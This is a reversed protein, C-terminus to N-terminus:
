TMDEIKKIMDGGIRAIELLVAPRNLEFVDSEAAAGAGEVARVNYRLGVQFNQKRLKPHWIAGVVVDEVSGHFFLLTDEYVESLKKLLVEVPHQAISDPVRGIRHDLNKFQSSRVGIDGTTDRLMKQITTKSLHILIDYDGLPTQFLGKPDLDLGDERVVKCATKALRTMRTAVLKSPGNSTYALGTQDHSTAVFLVLRSMAPDRKRWDGLARHLDSRDRSSVSGGVFNLIMPEERWDWRSLFLLTRLFGTSISAPPKWPHPHLFSQLVFLEILEESIHGALKQSNFWHKVLRITPSLAPFLTCFTTISQTHLPLHNYLWRFSLLAQDAEARTHAELSQNKVMRELLTEELDCHIRLRFIAGSPYTIDLFFLNHIGVEMDERVLQTVIQGNRTRLRRDLDLLFEPKTKQIATLNEPWRGSAEFYLNVEIPQFAGKVSGLVPAEVSSYRVQPAIAKLQRVQLPMDELERIDAELVSFANRAVDFVEKDTRLIGIISSFSNGRFRLHEPGLNLHLQLIYQCIEQCIVFASASPWEVCELIRGDQFRRLEARDGWLKQFKQAEDRKEAPPGYEMTRNMQSSDFVIGVSFRSLAGDPSAGRIPWPPREALLLHVLQARNGLAKNLLEYIESGFSWAFRQQDLTNSKSVPSGPLIELVLDFMQLPLSAKTIFTPEFQGMSQDNFLELSIKAQQQLLAASWPGMKFLINLETTPDFMVPGYEKLSKSDLRTDGRAPFTYPNEQFNTNALFQITAKFLELSSLSTPVLDRGKRGDRQLRLAILLSWEFHGFGGKSISSELGRQQLWIRGLICADQFAVCEKRALSLVELYHLFSMEAEVTSYYFNPQGIREPKEGSQGFHNCLKSLQFQGEQVCPIIRITYGNCSRKNRIASDQTLAKDGSEIVGSGSKPRLILIPLLSNDHLHGFSLEFTSELQTRLAAAIYTLFYARKYFYRMDLYDGKRFISSDMQVVMDVCLNAQTKVMTRSVYSGVVNYRSPKAYYLEYTADKTPKPRPYPITIGHKKEFERTADNIQSRRLYPVM